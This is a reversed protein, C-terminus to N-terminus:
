TEIDLSISNSYFLAIAKIRAYSLYPPAFRRYSAPHATKKPPPPNWTAMLIQCKIYKKADNAIQPSPMYSATWPSYKGIEEM